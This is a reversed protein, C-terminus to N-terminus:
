NKELVKLESDHSSRKTRSKNGAHASLGSGLTEPFTADM